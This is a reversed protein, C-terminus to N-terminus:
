TVSCLMVRSLFAVYSLRAFIQLISRLIVPVSPVGRLASAREPDRGARQSCSSCLGHARSICPVPACAHRSAVAATRVFLRCNRKRRKRARQATTRRMAQRLSRKSTPRLLLVLYLVLYAIVAPFVCALFVLGVPKVDIAVHDEKIDIDDSAQPNKRLLEQAGCM